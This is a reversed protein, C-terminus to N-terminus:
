GIPRQASAKCSTRRLSRTLAIRLTLTDLSMAAILPWEKSVAGATVEPSSSASGGLTLAASEVLRDVAQPYTRRRTRAELNKIQESESESWWESHQFLSKCAEFHSIPRLAHLIRASDRSTEPPRAHSLPGLRTLFQAIIPAFHSFPRRGTRVPARLVNSFALWLHSM